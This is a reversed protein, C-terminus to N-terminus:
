IMCILYVFYNFQDLNAQKFIIVYRKGIFQTIKHASYHNRINLTYILCLNYSLNFDDRITYTKYSKALLHKILVIVIYSNSHHIKTLWSTSTCWTLIALESYIFLLKPVGLFLLIIIEFRSTSSKIKRLKSNIDLIGMTM